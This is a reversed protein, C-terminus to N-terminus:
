KTHPLEERQYEFVECIYNVVNAKLQEMDQKRGTLKQLSTVGRDTIGCPVIWNFHELNTNVNFAFGHFSVGDRLAIGLATIKEDTVWVGRHERVRQANIGYERDLLRIFVEEVGDVFTRVDLRGPFKVILYGVIQGPGHYTAEGGREITHIEVGQKRLFDPEALIDGAKGTRGMTIVPPHEVLLLTDEIEDAVRRAHLDRQLELAQGYPMKELDRVRLIM